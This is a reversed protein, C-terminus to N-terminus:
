KWFGGWMLVGVLIATDGLKVWFSYNERRAKGNLALSVGVELAMLIIMVIQPANM